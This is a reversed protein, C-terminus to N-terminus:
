KVGSEQSHIRITTEHSSKVISPDEKVLEVYDLFTGEFKKQSKGLKRQKEIEKLLEERVSM